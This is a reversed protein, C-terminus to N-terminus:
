YFRASKHLEIWPSDKDKRNLLYFAKSDRYCTHRNANAWVNYGYKGLDMARMKKKDHNSELFLYDYKGKRWEKTGASDTVYIYDIGNVKGTLGYTVVNHPVEFPHIIHNGRLKIKREGTVLDVKVLEAVEYNSITKINPYMKRIRNYTSKNLHDGHKHTIFLYDVKHLHPEVKKYPLGVDIMLNEIVVCNGSSGSGIIEYELERKAM